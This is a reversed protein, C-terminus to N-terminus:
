FRSEEAHMMELDEAHAAVKSVVIVSLGIAIHVTWSHDAFCDPEMRHTQPRRQKGIFIHQLLHLALTTLLM